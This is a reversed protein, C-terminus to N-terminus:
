QHERYYEKILDALDEIDEYVTPRGLEKRISEIYPAYSVTIDIIRKGQLMSITELDFVGQKVGVATANLHNLYERIPALRAHNGAAKKIFTAVEEPDRDNWPLDAKLAERYKSTSVSAELSAKKRQRKWEEQQAVAAAKLAQRALMVQGGLFILAALNIAATIAEATSVRVGLTSPGM